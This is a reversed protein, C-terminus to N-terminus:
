RYIKQERGDIMSVKHYCLMDVFIPTIFKFWTAPPNSCWGPEPLRYSYSSHFIYCYKTPQTGKMSM